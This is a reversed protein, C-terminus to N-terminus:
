KHKPLQSGRVCGLFRNQLIVRWGGAFRYDQLVPQAPVDTDALERFVFLSQGVRIQDGHRLIHDTVPVGNVFTSNRSEQDHLHFQQAEKQISCHRRSATADLVAIENTPERGIFVEEGTLPFSEGQRPGSLAELRAEQKPLDEVGPERQM